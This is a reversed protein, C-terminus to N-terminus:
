ARKITDLDIGDNQLETDFHGYTDRLPHRAVDPDPLPFTVTGMAGLFVTLGSLWSNGTRVCTAGLAM